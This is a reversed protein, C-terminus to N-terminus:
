LCRAWSGSGPSAAARGPLRSTPRSLASAWQACRLHLGELVRKLPTSRSSSGLVHERLRRGRCPRCMRGDIALVGPHESCIRRTRRTRRARWGRPGQLLESGLLLDMETSPPYREPSCRPNLNRTSSGRRPMSSSGRPPGVKVLDAFPSFQLWFSGNKTRASIARFREVFPKVRLIVERMSGRIMCTDFYILRLRFLGRVIGEVSEKPSGRSQTGGPTCKRTGSGGRLPPTSPSIDLSTKSPRPSTRGPQRGRARRAARDLDALQDLSEGGVDATFDRGIPRCGQNLPLSETPSVASPPSWGAAAGQLPEALSRKPVRAASRRHGVAPAAPNSDQRM